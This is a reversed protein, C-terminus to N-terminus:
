NAECHREIICIGGLTEKKMRLYSFSMFGGELGVGYVGGLGGKQKKEEEQPGEPHPVNKKKELICRKGGGLNSPYGVKRTLHEEPQGTKETEKFGGRKSWQQPQKPSLKYGKHGQNGRGGGSGGRFGRCNGGWLLGV